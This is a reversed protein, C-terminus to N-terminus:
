PRSARATSEEVAQRADTVITGHTRTPTARDIRAPILAGREIKRNSEVHIEFYRDARGSVLFSPAAHSAPQHDCAEVIVRETLGILNRRTALSAAREAEALRQMRERVLPPPVFEESWRAAATKDRPSFPFAHVKIFGARRVIALSAEFDEDTEGPFGVIVDTSIVPRDLAARTREVMDLFDDRTYQRNMRRLIAPSGSQLPLHLHPVCVPNAALTDLLEDDVDGPELSSLRLRALGEVQAISRVLDALPSGGSRFRKRIATERAYAGLFIGTLIIERHGNKVLAAAETTAVGIPKSRLTSRLQPIICYTCFADCGDQVKLFARQHGAFSDIRAVLDRGLKVGGPSPPIIPLSSEPTSRASSAGPPADTLPNMWGEDANFYRRGSRRPQFTVPGPDDAFPARERLIARLAGGVDEDHGVVATVGDIARLRDASASAGCGVVIVPTRGGHSARRIAQRNKRAAAATVACTNVLAIDHRENAQAAQWGLSELLERLLQSEYQNVKCGLTAIRYKGAM